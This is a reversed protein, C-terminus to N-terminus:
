DRENNTKRVGAPSSKRWAIFIWQAAIWQVIRPLPCWELSNPIAYFLSVNWHPLFVILVYNFLCGLSGGLTIFASAFLGSHCPCLPPHLPLPHLSLQQRFSAAHTSCMKVTIKGSALGKSTRRQRELGQCPTPGWFGHSDMHHSRGEGAKGSAKAQGKRQSQIQTNVQSM